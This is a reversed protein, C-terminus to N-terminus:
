FQFLTENWKDMLRCSSFYTSMTICQVLKNQCKLVRERFSFVDRRLLVKLCDIGLYLCKQSISDRRDLNFLYRVITNYSTQLKRYTQSNFNCWLQDCYFSCCYAKFLRAKVEMSCKYFKRVLINGKAYVSKVQRCMDNDDKLNDTIFVGLYKQTNVVELEKGNLKFVPVSLNSMKKPKLCMVKTKKVNFSLEYKKAYMECINLLTQLSMPSPGLLVSDDAYFIHNVKQSNIECGSTCKNLCISLDNLYVNFYYPSIISGQRVGNTVKFQDSLCSGWRVMFNQNKYWFYLLRVIIIPLKRKILKSMLHYHNIRDFAKSADLYAVYVPSSFSRYYDVVQKFTYVCIDAGLQTKFGFQNCTTTFYDKYKYLLILELIKSSVCTLAVPRYNDSDTVNGKKDKIIPVLITDMVGQPIYGHIFMANFCLSLLVAVSDHAFKFHEAYVNDMGASKGNKLSRMADIINSPTFREFYYDESDSLATHLFAKSSTDKSSNLLKQFYDQWMDTIARSGTVGNVTTALPTSANNIKKIETWFARDNKQLLSNALVDASARSTDKKCSRLTRKFQARTKKMNSFLFGTRKKGHDRWLLYADRAMSHVEKCYTNWGRVQKFDPKSVSKMHASAVLLSDITSQYMSDIARHHNEDTCQPDDCLIVQHELKVKKLEEETRRKYLLIDNPQLKDWKIRYRPKTSAEDSTQMHISNIDLLAMIPHHDSSVYNYMIQMGEILNHSCNTCILHDIWSTSGHADSFFTYSDNPLFDVDSLFLNEEQSFQILDQGFKHGHAGNKTINANFDGFIAVYPTSHGRIISDLKTLYFAFDERNEQTCVPMYVNILLMNCDKENCLEIGMLRTDEFDVLKCIKGLSKRWLIALGGHPRGVLGQSESDISSIGKGYFDEHITALFTLEFDFLWTEQLLLIDSEEALKQIEEISTKIGRCNYSCVRLNNFQYVLFM